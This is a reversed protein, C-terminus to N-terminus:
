PPKSWIMLEARPHIPCIRRKRSRMAVQFGIGKGEMERRNEIGQCGADAYVVAEKGQLLDAAPTLDHVNEATTEISHILGTEKDVGVPSEDRFVVPQGQQELLLASVLRVIAADNPFIGVVRTRRKIEKDRRELLNTSWIKRWHEPPFSRFALVDERAQEMRAAAASFKESLMTIVQDWQQEVAQAVPQVFVSRLAAAVMDQSGKPVKVLLNRAFHVRCRQWSSGQCCRGIVKKLGAHADSIVLQVGSLGRERLRRLFATWFTEDESDGVEIGLVERQGSATIGVAVIVARSGKERPRGASHHLDRPDAAAERPASPGNSLVGTPSHTPQDTVRTAASGGEQSWVMGMESEAAVTNTISWSECNMPMLGASIKKLWELEMQLRGSQQFLEAEKAQGEDKDKTKKGRTFLESAGDLLQRKWQSVQIPDCRFTRQM